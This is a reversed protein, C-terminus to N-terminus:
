NARLPNQRWETAPDITKPSDSSWSATPVVHHEGPRIATTRLPNGRRQFNSSQASRPRTVAQDSALPVLGPEEGMPLRKVTSTETATAPVQTTRWQGNVQSITSEKSSIQTTQLQLKRIGSTKNPEPEDKFPDEEPMSPPLDETSPAPLEVKDPGPPLDQSTSPRRPAGDPVGMEGSNDKPPEPASDDFPPVLSSELSKEPTAPENDTPFLPVEESPSIPLDPEVKPLPEKKAPMPLSEPQPQAPTPGESPWRRWNTPYYGYTIRRPTCGGEAGNSCEAPPYTPASQAQWCSCLFIVAVYAVNKKNLLM